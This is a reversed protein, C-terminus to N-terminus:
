ERTSRYAKRRRHPGTTVRRSLLGVLSSNEPTGFNSGQRRFLMQVIDFQVLTKKKPHHVHQTCLLDIVCPGSATKSCLMPCGKTLSTGWACFKALVLVHIEFMLFCLELGQLGRTLDVMGTTMLKGAGAYWTLGAKGVYGGV